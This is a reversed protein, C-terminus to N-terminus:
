QQKLYADETFYQFSDANRVAQNPTTRAFDMCVPRSYCYDDTSGVVNFHTMEHIITGARTGSEHVQLFTSNDLEPLEFYPPCIYVTSPDSSFVNAYVGPDCNQEGTQACFFTVKNVRIHNKLATLTRRVEKVRAKDWLGFWSRYSGSEPTIQITAASIADFANTLASEIETREQPTCRIFDAKAATTFSLLAMTVFLIKPM